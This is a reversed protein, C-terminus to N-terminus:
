REQTPTKRTIHPFDHSIKTFILICVCLLEIQLFRCKSRVSVNTRIKDQRATTTEINLPMRTTSHTSPPKRAQRGQTTHTSTTTPRHTSTMSTDSAHSIQIEPLLPDSSHSNGGNSQRHSNSQYNPRDFSFDLASSLGGLNPMIEVVPRGNRNEIRVGPPIGGLGIADIELDLGPLTDMPMYMPQMPQGAFNNQVNASESTRFSRPNFGEQPNNNGGVKVGVGKMSTKFFQPSNETGSAVEDFEVNDNRPNVPIIETGFTHEIPSSSSLRWVTQPIQPADHYQQDTSFSSNIFFLTLTLFNMFIIKM